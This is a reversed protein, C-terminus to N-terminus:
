HLPTDAGVIATLPMGPEIIAEEGKPLASSVHVVSPNAIKAAKAALDPAALTLNANLPVSVGHLDLSEVKFAIVGPRGDRGAREVRTVTAKGLSGRPAVITEGVKLDQDLKVLLTDGVQSADSSANVGTVLRLAMGHHLIGDGILLTKSLPPQQPKVIYTADVIPSPLMGPEVAFTQVRMDRQITIPEVYRLSDETPTWGDITYYITASPVPSSITLNTGPTVYGAYESLFPQKSRGADEFSHSQATPDYVGPRVDKGGAQASGPQVISPAQLNGNGANQMSQQNLLVGQSIAQAAACQGYVLACAAFVLLNKLKM